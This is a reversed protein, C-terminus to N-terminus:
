GCNGIHASPLCQLGTNLFLRNSGTTMCSSSDGLYVGLIHNEASEGSIRSNRLSISAPGWWIYLYNNGLIKRKIEGEVGTDPLLQALETIRNETDDIKPLLDKESHDMEDFSEGISWLLRAIEILTNRTSDKLAEASLLTVAQNRHLCPVM